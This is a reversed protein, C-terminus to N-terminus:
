RKVRANGEWISWIQEEDAPQAYDTLFTTALAGSAWAFQTCQEINWGKLIGYLLGGVFGDGGGIRDLVYIPRPKIVQWDKGNYVIAGWLHENASVVERLTNGFVSVNPFTTQANRIMEKFSDIANELGKGGEAPGKIGLCLQFDEENGILIDSM